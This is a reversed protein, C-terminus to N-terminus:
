FHCQYINSRINTRWYLNFGKMHIKDYNSFLLKNRQYMYLNNTFYINKWYIHCYTYFVNNNYYFDEYKYKSVNEGINFFMIKEEIVYIKHYSKFEKM